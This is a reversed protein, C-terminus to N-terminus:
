KNSKFYFLSFEDILNYIIEEFQKKQKNKDGGSYFLTGKEWVTINPTINSKSDIIKADRKLYISIEGFYENTYPSQCKTVDFVLIPTESKYENFNVIKLDPIRFHLIDKLNSISPLESTDLESSNEYYIIIDNINGFISNTQRQFYGDMGKDLNQSYLTCYSLFFVFITILKKM